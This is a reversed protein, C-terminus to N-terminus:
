VDRLSSADTGRGKEFPEEPYAIKVPTDREIMLQWWLKLINVGTKFLRKFNFFQSRGYTRHYHHVPFEAFRYGALELKKVLELCIVGSNHHLHIMDFVHRRILRFDCDVDRVHFNFLLRMLRLYIIGILIRHLPDARAIKYGNVVDIGDQMVPLFKRLEFVDYQGDGDTYFILDKTANAFGSKLAGGYGRNKEHFILRLKEFKKQLEQLLERSSDTSGDDVVLIEHDNTFERAVTDAAAVLSAITGADNYCPFFITLSKSSKSEKM